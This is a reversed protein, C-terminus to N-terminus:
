DPLSVLNAFLDKAERIKAESGMVCVNDDEM